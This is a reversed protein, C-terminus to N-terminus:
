KQEPTTMAYDKLIQVQVCIKNKEAARQPTNPLKQKFRPRWNSFAAGAANILFTSM